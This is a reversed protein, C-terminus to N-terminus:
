FDMYQIYTYFYFAMLFLLLLIIFSFFSYIIFFIYRDSVDYKLDNLLEVTWRIGYALLGVITGIMLCVLWKGLTKEM